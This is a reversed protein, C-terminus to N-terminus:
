CCNLREQIGSPGFTTQTLREGRPSQRIGLSTQQGLYIGLLYDMILSIQGMPRILGIFNSHSDLFVDGEEPAVGEFHVHARTHPRFICGNGFELVQEMAIRPLRHHSDTCAGIQEKGFIEIANEKMGTHAACTSQVLVGVVHVDFGLRAQDQVFENLLNDIHPEAAQLVKAMNGTLHSGRRHLIDTGIAHFGFIDNDADIRDFDSSAFRVSEGVLLATVAIAVTDEFVFETPPIDYCADDIAQLFVGDQVEAIAVEAGEIRLRQALHAIGDDTDATLFEWLHFFETGCATEEFVGDDGDRLEFGQLRLIGSDGMIFDIATDFDGSCPKDFLTAALPFGDTACLDKLTLRQNDDIGGASGAGVVDDGEGAGDDGGDTGAEGDGEGGFDIVDSEGFVDSLM